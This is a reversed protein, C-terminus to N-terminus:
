GRRAEAVLRVAEAALEEIRGFRREAVLDATAMWSGGCAIVNSLKLYDSVNAANIGGTPVFSVDPFPAALARVFEAGGTPEAPFFKVANVGARTAAEVESPTCAGPLAAIDSDRCFEIVDVSIGPSVIFQAGADLAREAAAVTRVTGAGVLLDPFAKRASSISELAADSRLVIEVADLGGALLAEVLPGALASSPLQVVPLVGLRAIRATASQEPVAVQPQSM